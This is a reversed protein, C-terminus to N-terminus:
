RRADHRRLPERWRLIQDDATLLETGILLATAVIM